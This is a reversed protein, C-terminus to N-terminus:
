GGARGAGQQIRFQEFELRFKDGVIKGLLDGLNIKDLVAKLSKATETEDFKVHMNITAELKGIEKNITEADRVGLQKQLHAFLPNSEAAKGLDKGIVDPAFQQISALEQPSM